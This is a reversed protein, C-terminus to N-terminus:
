EVFVTLPRGTSGSTVEKFCNKMNINNALVDNLPSAQIEAKTTMPVKYLDEVSKIDEPRVGVEDFKRRYFPVHEYAHKLVARLKKNQIMQLKSPELHLNSRLERLYYIYRPLM